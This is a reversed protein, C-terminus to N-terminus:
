GFGVAGFGVLGFLVEGFWVSGFRVSDFRVEGFCVLVSQVLGLEVEGGVGIVLGHGSLGDEARLASARGSSM